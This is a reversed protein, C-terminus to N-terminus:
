RTKFRQKARRGRKRARALSVIASIGSVGDCRARIPRDGDGDGDGDFRVGLAAVAAAPGVGSLLVLEGM